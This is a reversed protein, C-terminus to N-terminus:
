VSVGVRWVAPVACLATSARHASYETGARYRYKRASYLSTYRYKFLNTGPLASTRPTACYVLIYIFPIGISKLTTPLVLFLFLLRYFALTIRGRAVM